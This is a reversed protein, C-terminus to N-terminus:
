STITRWIGMTAAKNAARADTLQLGATDASYVGVAGEATLVVGGPDGCGAADGEDNARGGAMFGIRLRGPIPSRPHFHPPLPDLKVYVIAYVLVPAVWCTVTVLLWEVM